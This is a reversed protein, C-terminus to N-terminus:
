FYTLHYNVFDNSSITPLFIYSICWIVTEKLLDNTKVTYAGEEDVGHIGPVICYAPYKTGNDKYCIYNCKIEYWAGATYYKIHTKMSHDNILDAKTIQAAKVVPLIANMITIIIMFTIIIKNKM